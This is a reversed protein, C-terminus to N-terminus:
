SKGTDVYMNIIVLNQPNPRSINWYLGGRLSYERILDFKAKISRADEYWVEHEVGDIYYNYYPAMADTDFKIEANYEIARDVAQIYSLTEAQTEGRVFPLPWDYGYNSIGLFIKSNDIESIAYNIVRRMSNVPAVAMPEGFKYGWEYTMILVSDAINGIAAYDVGEYLLGPQDASTKPPLAVFLTYGYGSLYNKLYALFEIYAQKNEAYLFEFDIDLGIYGKEQMNVVINECLVPWLNQNKLLYDSLENSFNGYGTLTSIHMIPLAGYRYIQGIMQSDDPSILEGQRTFGYTFPIVYNFFPIETNILNEDTFTYAYGGLEFSYEKQTDYRIVIDQNQSLIDNGMLQLNNRFLSYETVGYDQAIQSVETGASFFGTVEPIPVVISQGVTVRGGYKELGNSIILLQLSVGYNRAISYLTEGSQVTHIYM